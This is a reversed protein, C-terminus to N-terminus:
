LKDFSLSHSSVVSDQFVMSGNRAKREEDEEEDLEENDHRRYYRYSDNEYPSKEWTKDLAAKVSAQVDMLHILQRNAKPDGKIREFAAKVLNYVEEVDVKDVADPNPEEEKKEPLKPLADAAAQLAAARRELNRILLLFETTLASSRRLRGEELLQDITSRLNHAKKKLDQTGDFTGTVLYRVNDKSLESPSPVTQRFSGTRKTLENLTAIDLITNGVANEMLLGQTSSTALLAKTIEVYKERVSVLLPTQGDIDRDLSEKGLYQLFLKVVSTAGQKVAILLPTNWRHKSRQSLLAENTSRPLKKLFHEVLVSDRSYALEHYLNWGKLLDRDYVADPSKALIYDLMKTELKAKVALKFPSIGIFKLKTEYAATILKQDKKELVKLSDLAGGLIAATVPSEGLSNITWGLLAPLKKELDKTRRLWIAKEDSHSLSYFKYAAVPKDSSLYDIIKEAGERAATWLLPHTTTENHDADPDNKRALDARKKGHVNLGLYLKNQDNVLVPLDTTEGDKQATKINIGYGTRRIFEDLMGDQDWEIISSILNDSITPPKPLAQYLNAIQVFGEFDKESVMRELLTKIEKGHTECHRYVTQIDTLMKYPPVNTQVASPRSAIDVFNFQPRDVTADSDYSEDSDADSDEFKYENEEDEDDPKYQAVAIALILKATSWKRGMVAAFLPTYGQSSYTSMSDDVMKVSINLPNASSAADKPPLCLEEVKKNDGAYCAEFLEHYRATLHEPVSNRSYSSLTLYIYSTEQKKEQTPSYKSPSYGFHKGGATTAEDPYVDKWTKAGAKALATKVREMYSEVDGLTNQRKQVDREFKQRPSLDDDQKTNDNPNPAELKERYERYFKRWPTTEEVPKEVLDEEMANLANEEEARQYGVNLLIYDVWDKFTLKEGTDVYSRLARRIAVDVDAGLAVLLTAVEDYRVLAAELPRVALNLHNKPPNYGLVRQRTSNSAADISRTVDAEDLRLKGGHALLIALMSYNSANIASVVPFIVNQYELAPFDLMTKANPDCRLITSVLKTRGSVVMLHFITEMADNATTSTAGAQILREAVKCAEDEDPRIITLTLPHIPRADKPSSPAKVDAGAVILADVTEISGYLVSYALATFGFDWDAENIDIIDPQDEEDDPIEEKSEEESEEAKGASKKKPRDEDDDDEDEDEDEDEDDGDEDEAEVIEMGDEDHSSWDDESSTNPGPVDGEKEEDEAAAAKKKDEEENKASREILKRIVAIQNFQAALHIPARGDAIRASIRAGADILDCAIDSANCYIAVHLCTRGVHDRQNVDIGDALLKKVAERDKIAIAAFLKQAPKMYTQESWEGEDIPNFSGSMTQRGPNEEIFQIRGRIYNEDEKKQLEMEDDDIPKPCHECCDELVEEITGFFAPHRHLRRGKNKPNFTSNMGLDTQYVLKDIRRADWGPGYPIHLTAVDYNNNELGGISEEVKLDGKYKRRNRRRYYTYSDSDPRGRLSRRGSMFAQRRDTDALKELVLLRALGEMKSIAREYITPDVEGRRLEPVYVEYGRNSYKALRVEYSPSRRTMDVTNCQRMMAVVARPNAWVRQGDYACCPADIDFGALIEAPSQYLRLVIQVSRYPYQCHISVTHKTRICTVDWPVSDRVAEYIQVIKKEAQEPTLGWLFLDVDSTPYAASHYHKRINRKSKSVEPDLPTLCALVSGGAAVVNNWDILQSLSGESFIAWNKKFEELDSVMAQSGDKRRKADTLPMVYKATLDTEDQVIRARTTRIASPAAFVDVLGVYPNSLRTNQRDNAFLKRLEIEEDISPKLAADLDHSVGPGAPLAEIRDIFAQIEPTPQM